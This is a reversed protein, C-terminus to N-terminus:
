INGTVEAPTAHVSICSKEIKSDFDRVLYRILPCFGIM